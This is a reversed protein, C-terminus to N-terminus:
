RAARTFQKALARHAKWQYELFKTYQKVLDPRQENIPRSLDRV